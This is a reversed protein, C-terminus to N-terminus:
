KHKKMKKRRKRKTSDMLVDRIEKDLREQLGVRDADETVDLGLRKLTAEWEAAAGARNMTLTYTLQRAAEADGELSSEPPNDFLNPVKPKREVLRSPDNLSSVSSPPASALISSPESLLLLPRHLSFFQHLNFDKVGIMPHLPPHVFTAQRSLPTDVVDKQKGNQTEGSMAANTSPETPSPRDGDNQKVASSPVSKNPKASNFYRGGGAKSSFFSSYPRSYAPTHRLLRTLSTM